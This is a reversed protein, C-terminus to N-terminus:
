CTQPSPDAAGKVRAASADATWLALAVDTAAEIRASSRAERTLLCAPQPGTLQMM